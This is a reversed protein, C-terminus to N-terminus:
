VRFEVSGVAADAKVLTAAVEVGLELAEGRVRASVAPSAIQLTGSRGDGAVEIVTGTFVRGVEPALVLAETLDIIGREYKKARGDSERMLGPLEPLAARVWDPVERGAAVAACVELSFRDVLRRLPATTHAYPLGIAAHIAEAPADGDFAHYGAGRFLSTCANLMAAGAPSSADISRVFGPYDLDVPWPIRLAEARRRLKEVAGPEAPPLTRLIGVGAELMLRAAATGTLLSIQANWGEVPLPTRYALRWRSGDAHVEQEPLELNVGGRAAELRERLRGVEALLRLSGDASGGDLAAQAGEYTLQARSRVLARDLRTSQLEGDADLALRWVLARREGGPLLSAAGESLVPPHLSAKATPAYFTQGRRRAEADVPDGAGVFAAVDAIAYSVLYGAGAREVLVAQDLDRAGQPDITVFPLGTLDTGPSPVDRAAAEAAALVAPPFDRPVALDERLRRLGTVLEPPVAEFTRVVRGTM